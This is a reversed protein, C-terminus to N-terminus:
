EEELEELDEVEVTTNNTFFTEKELLVEKELQELSNLLGSSHENLKALLESIEQQRKRLLKSKSSFLGGKLSSNQLTYIQIYIEHILEHPKELDQFAPFNSFLSADEYYWKGFDCETQVIPFNTKSHEKVIGRLSLLVYSKWHIHFARAERLQTIIERKTMCCFTQSNQSEFTSNKKISLLLKLLM